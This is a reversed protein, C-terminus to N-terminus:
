VKLIDISRREGGLMFMTYFPTFYRAKHITPINMLLKIVNVFNMFRIVVRIFRESM